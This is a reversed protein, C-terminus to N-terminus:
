RESMMHTGDALQTRDPVDEPLSHEATDEFIIIVEAETKYVISKLSVITEDSSIIFWSKTQLDLNVENFWIRHVEQVLNSVHSILPPSSLNLRVSCSEDFRTLETNVHYKM